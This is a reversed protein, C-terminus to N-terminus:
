IADMDIGEKFKTEPIIPNGHTRRANGVFMCNVMTHRIIENAVSGLYKEEDRSSFDAGTNGIFIFDVHHKLNEVVYERIIDATRRGVESPLIEITSNEEEELEGLEYEVIDKLDAAKINDQECILIAIKDMPIKIKCILKLADMAHKSGDMCLAFQFGDPRDKRTVVNKVILVPTNSEVALYQVATGMVTPDEKVGKRGHYGVVTVDAKDEDAIALLLQKATYSEGMFLPDDIRKALFNFRHGLHM